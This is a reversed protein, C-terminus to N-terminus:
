DIFSKSVGMKNNVNLSFGYRLSWNVIFYVKTEKVILKLRNEKNNYLM